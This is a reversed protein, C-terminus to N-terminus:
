RNYIIYWLYIMKTYGLNFINNFNNIVTQATNKKQLDLNLPDAQEPIKLWDTIQNSSGKM